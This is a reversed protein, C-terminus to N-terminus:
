LPLKEPATPGGSSSEPACGCSYVVNQGAKRCTCYKTRTPDDPCDHADPPPCPIKKTRKAEETEATGDAVPVTGEPQVKIDPQTPAQKISGAANDPASEASCAGIMLAIALFLPTRMSPMM